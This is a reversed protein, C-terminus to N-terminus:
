HKVLNSRIEDNSYSKGNRVYVTHTSGNFKVMKPHKSYGLRTLLYNVAMGKPVEQNAMTGRIRLAQILLSSSIVNRTVGPTTGEEIIDKAIDDMDDSSTAIMALREPTHMASGDKNFTADIKMSLFWTRVEGPCQRWLTDIMDTRQKWTESTIGCYDYMEPLSAWPTFVILWRRDDEALPIADNYNSNAWHNTTNTTTYTRGGKANINVVDNSVFEKTFNYLKHREPGVIRIEEIINLAAGMAWDTFGGNANLTANGTIKVNRSGMAAKLVTSVLTKGDGQVGKFLPSWRIKVGPKQVNHAMWYLVQMYVDPRRGCMDFLHHQFALIGASGAESYESACAPVSAPNYTNVFELGEVSFYAPQDPRYEMRHVTRMGWHNFAWDVPNERQGNDKMPMCRTYEAAFGLMSIEAGNTINYFKDCSQVYCYHNIWEPADDLARVAPPSLLARLRGIPLKADWLDLLKNASKALREVQMANLRHGQVAPIVRDLMDEPSTASAVLDLLATMGDGGLSSEGLTVLAREREVYVTETSNCAASITMSLYTRHDRWKDRVMGSKWLLREMRDGDCGTWFALHACLAMDHESNKEVEGAWLQQVSAKGGFVAAASPRSALMRRVLEDDDEPGRWESRRTWGGEAVLKPPFWDRVLCAVGEDYVADASGTAIGDLGFAIGREATYFEMPNHRCSHAPVAGGFRGIVHVGRRSSSFEQLAGPFAALMGAALDTMVGQADICNDIDLFWYGCDATMWFGLAFGERLAARASEYSSWNHPLSADIRAEAGNLPCPTKEYKQKAENWVLRWLFWQPINRMGGLADHLSM